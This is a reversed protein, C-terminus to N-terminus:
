LPLASNCFYKLETKPEFSVKFNAESILQGKTNACEKQCTARGLHFYNFFAPFLYYTASQGITYETPHVRWKGHVYDIRSLTGYM